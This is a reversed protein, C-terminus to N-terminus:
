AGVVPNDFDILWAYLVNLLRESLSKNAICTQCLRNYSPLPANRHAGVQNM